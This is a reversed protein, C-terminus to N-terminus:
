QSSKTTATDLTSDLSTQAHYLEDLGVLSLPMSSNRSMQPIMNHFVISIRMRTPQRLVLTVGM